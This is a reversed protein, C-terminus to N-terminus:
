KSMLGPHFQRNVDLCGNCVPYVGGILEHYFVDTFNSAVCEEGCDNCTFRLPPLVKGSVIEGNFYKAAEIEKSDTPTVLHAIDSPTPAGMKLLDPAVEHPFATANLASKQLAALIDKNATCRDAFRKIDMTFGFEGDCLTVRNKFTKIRVERNYHVAEDKATSM